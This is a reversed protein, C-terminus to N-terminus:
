KSEEEPPEWSGTVVASCPSNAADNTHVARVKYYYTVHPEIYAVNVYSTMKQRYMRKYEGDESTSRYIVYRLAGEVAPWTLKVKGTGEESGVTVVPAPLACIIGCADSQASRARQNTTDAAAVKYYYTVGTEANVDVYAATVSSGRYVFGGDKKRSRYIFYKDAGDVATWTIEPKGTDTEKGAAVDTPIELMDAEASFDAKALHIKGALVDKEFVFGDICTDCNEIGYPNFWLPCIEIGSEADRLSYKRLDYAIDLKEDRIYLTGKHVLAMKTGDEAVLSDFYTEIGKEGAALIPNEKAGLRKEANMGLVHPQAAITEVCKVKAKAREKYSELEETYDSDYSGEREASFAAIAAMSYLADDDFDAFKAKGYRVTQYVDNGSDVYAQYIEVYKAFLEGPNGKPFGQKLLRGAFYFKKKDNGFAATKGEARLADYIGDLKREFCKKRGAKALFVICLVLAAAGLLVYGNLTMNM